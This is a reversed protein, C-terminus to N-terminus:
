GKVAPWNREGDRSGGLHRLEKQHPVLSMEQRKEM